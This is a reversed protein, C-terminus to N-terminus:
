RKEIWQKAEKLLTFSGCVAVPSGDAKELAEAVSDAREASCFYKKCTSYIRDIDMARPSDPQVAILRKAVAALGKVCKDVDKDSLCGYIVTPRTGKLSQCLMAVSAPNHAGDLWYTAGNKNILENRGPLKANQVASYFRGDIKLIEAAKIALSANYPQAAGCMSLAYEEGGYLFSTGNNNLIQPIDPFIAGKQGFFELVEPPQLASVVAPCNKIIGAKQACIKKVTDGLFKTHELSISTIVAIEKGNVANTADSLGGMGCELVAYECGAQAFAYVAAATEVEFRTAERGAETNLVAAFSDRLLNEDADGGNIRYQERIDYVAPSTYVGTNRGAAFLINAIYEATSGKGNTGAIHIIKLRDDPSGLGNLIARTREVGFVMGKKGLLDLRQEIGRM